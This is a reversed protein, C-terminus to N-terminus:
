ENVVRWFKRDLSVLLEAEWALVKRHTLENWASIEQYTLRSSSQLEIYWLYVYYLEPKKKVQLLLDPTKGTTKEV